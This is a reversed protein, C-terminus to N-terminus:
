VTSSINCSVVLMLRQFPQTILMDAAKEEARDPSVAEERM